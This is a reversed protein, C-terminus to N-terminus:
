ACVTLFQFKLNIFSAMSRPILIQWFTSKCKVKCKDKFKGVVVGILHNLKQAPLNPAFDSVEMLKTMAPKAVIRYIYAVLSILQLRLDNILIVKKKPHYIQWLTNM